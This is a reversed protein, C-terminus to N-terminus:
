LYKVLRTYWKPLELAGPIHRVGPVSLTRMPRGESAFTLLLM